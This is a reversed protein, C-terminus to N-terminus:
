LSSGSRSLRDAPGFYSEQPRHRMSVNIDNYDRSFRGLLPGLSFPSYYAPQVLDITSGAWTPGAALLAAGVRGFAGSRKM